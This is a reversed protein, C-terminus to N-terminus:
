YGIGGAAVAEALIGLEAPNEAVAVVAHRHIRAPTIEIDLISIGYPIGAPLGALRLKIEILAPVSHSVGSDGAFLVSETRLGKEEHRDAPAAFHVPQAQRVLRAFALREANVGKHLPAEPVCGGVHFVELAVKRCSFHLHFAVCNVMLRFVAFPAIM